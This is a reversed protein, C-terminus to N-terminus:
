FNNGQNLVCISLSMCFLLLRLFDLVRHFLLWVYITFFLLQPKLHHKGLLSISIIGSSSYFRIALSTANYLGQLKLDSTSSAQVSHITRVFEYAATSTGFHHELGHEAKVVLHCGVIYTLCVFVFYTNQMIMCSDGHSVHLALVYYPLDNLM